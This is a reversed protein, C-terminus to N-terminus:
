RLKRDLARIPYYFVPLLLTTFFVGPLYRVRLVTLAGAADKALVTFIFGTLATMFAFLFTLLAASLLTNRFLYHMTLGVACGLVAFLLTYIGDTAPSALDYLAGGLLGFFMGAFEQEFACVSVTLPVLLLLAYKAAGLFTGQVAAAALFLLVYLTRKILPYFRARTRM